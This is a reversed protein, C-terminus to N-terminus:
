VHYHMVAGCVLHSSFVGTAPRNGGSLRGYSKQFDKSLFYCASIKYPKVGTGAAHNDVSPIAQPANPPRVIGPEESTNTEKAEAAFFHDRNQSARFGSAIQPVPEGTAFLL